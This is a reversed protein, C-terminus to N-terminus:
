LKEVLTNYVYPSIWMKFPPINQYWLEKSLFRNSSEHYLLLWEPMSDPADLLRKFVLSYNESNDDEPNEIIEKIKVYEIHYTTSWSSSDPYQLLINEGLLDSMFLKNKIVEEPVIRLGEFEADKYYCLDKGSLTEGRYYISVADTKQTFHQLDIQTLM